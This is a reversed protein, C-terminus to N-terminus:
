TPLFTIRRDSGADRHAARRARCAADVVCRLPACPLGPGGDGVSAYTVVDYRMGHSSFYDALNQELTTGQTVCVTAGELDAVKAIRSANRVLFGQGDYFYVGTFDIGLTVDRRFSWTAGGAFIDIGKSQILTFVTQPSVVVYEVKIAGFLAASITRCNDVEFDRVTAM